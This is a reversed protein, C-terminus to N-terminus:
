ETGTPSVAPPHTLAMRQTQRRRAPTVEKQAAQREWENGKLMAGFSRRQEGTLQLWQLFVKEEPAM